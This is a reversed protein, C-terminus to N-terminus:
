RGKTLVHSLTQQFDRKAELLLAPDEILSCSTNMIAQTIPSEPAFVKNLIQLEPVVFSISGQHLFGQRTRRQAGGALKREGIMIDYQTPKAMCFNRFSPDSPHPDNQLLTPFIGTWQIIAEAVQQHIWAYNELTNQSYAPYQAPILVSYTFDWLHFLIGGGTPRKALSLSDPKLYLTPDIFHGFTASESIWDYFHLIPESDSKLDHLLKRDIEMNEFATNPGTDIIKWVM